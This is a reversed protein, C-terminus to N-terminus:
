GAALTGLGWWQFTRALDLVLMGALSVTAVIALFLEFSGLRVISRTVVEKGDWYMTGTVDHFGLKGIENWTISHVGSPWHKTKTESKAM